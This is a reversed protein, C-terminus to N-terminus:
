TAGNPMLTVSISGPPNAVSQAPEEDLLDSGNGAYASKWL